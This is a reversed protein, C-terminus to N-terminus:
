VAALPRPTFCSYFDHRGGASRGCYAWVLTEPEEDLYKEAKEIAPKRIDALIRAYEPHRYRESCGAYIAAIVLISIFLILNNRM